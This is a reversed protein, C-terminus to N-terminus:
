AWRCRRRSSTRARGATSTSAAPPQPRRLRNRVNMFLFPALDKDCEILCRCAASRAQSAVEALEAAYAAEVAQEPTLTLPCTKKPSLTIRCSEKASLGRGPALHAPDGPECLRVRPKIRARRGPEFDPGTKDKLGKPSCSYLGPHPKAFGPFGPQDGREARGARVGVSRGQDDALRDRRGRQDGQDHGDPRGEAEAGPRHGPRRGRATGARDRAPAARAQETAATQLKQAQQDVRKELDGSCNRASATRTLKRGPGVDNYGHRRAHRRGRSPRRDGSSRSRAAARDVTVTM